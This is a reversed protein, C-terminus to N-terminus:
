DYRFPHNFKSRDHEDYDNDTDCKNIDYIGYHNDNDYNCYDYIEM